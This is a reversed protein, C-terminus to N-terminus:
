DRICSVCGDGKMRVDGVGPSCLEADEKSCREGTGSFCTVLEVIVLACCRCESTGDPVLEM